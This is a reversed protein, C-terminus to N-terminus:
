ELGAAIVTLCESQRRRQVVAGHLLLVPRRHCSSRVWSQVDADLKLPFSTAFHVRNRQYICECLSPCGSCATTTAPHSASALVSSVAVRPVRLASLCCSGGGQLGRSHIQWDILKDPKREKRTIGGKMNKSTLGREQEEKKKSTSTIRSWVVQVM